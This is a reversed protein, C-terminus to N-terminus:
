ASRRSRAVYYGFTTRDAGVISLTVIHKVGQEAGVRQLNRSVETFFATAPAEEITDPHAVDIIADVGSLADALGAGSRVNIRHSRSISVVTHGAREAQEVVHHGVTGTAGAVAIRM